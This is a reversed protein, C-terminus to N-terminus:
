CSYGIHSFWGVCDSPQIHTFARPIAAVLEEGTRLRYKRLIAKIKSWMQEIPNLDPSYPPLYIVTAQAGRILEAVGSVKHSALNDMVVVDDPKLTPVLHDRLYAKFREGNLAGEFVESVTSGDVRVSSIITTGKPTNLPVHDIVREGRAARGYRRTMNTNVGSEDLFVLRSGPLSPMM